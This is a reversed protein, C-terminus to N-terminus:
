HSDNPDPRAYVRDSAHDVCIDNLIRCPAFDDLTMCPRRAFVGHCSRTMEDRSDNEACCSADISCMTTTAVITLLSKAKQTEV